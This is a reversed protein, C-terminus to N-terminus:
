DVQPEPAEARGLVDDVAVGGAHLEDGGRGAAEVAGRSRARPEHHHFVPRDFEGTKYILNRVAGKLYSLVKPVNSSVALLKLTERCCYPM